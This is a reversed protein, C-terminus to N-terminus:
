GPVAAMWYGPRHLLKYDGRIKGNRIIEVRIEHFGGEEKNNPNYAIIYQSHLEEGIRAIASELGQLTTFSHERGGTYETYLELPNDIFIAKTQRFLEVFVPIFNASNGLSGTAQMVNTPTPPVNPPLPRATPPIADPRPPEPKKTLTTMLRSINVTQIMVNQLQADVLVERARSESGNDRTESIVMLVRRRNPPRRSLMRISERVADNLRSSSSGARTLRKFAKGLQDEDSTFDQLVDIRHDFAVVAVEGQEGAVLPVLMPAIKQIKPRVAETAANAQIAVVLSIPIYTVDVKIDQAKTNDYLRFEDPRLGHVYNGNDDKVTVPAIVVNVTTRFIQGPAEQQAWLAAALFAAIIPRIVTM